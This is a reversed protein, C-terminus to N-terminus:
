PERVVPKAPPSGGSGGSSAGGSTGGSGRTSGGASGSTGGGASSGSSGDSTSGGGRPSDMRPRASEGGRTWHPDMMGPRSGYAGRYPTSPAPYVRDGGATRRETTVNRRGGIDQAREAFTPRNFAGDRPRIPDRRGARPTVPKPTTVPNDAVPTIVPTSRPGQSAMAMRWQWYAYSEYLSNGCGSGRHSGNLGYFSSFSHLWPSMGIAGQALFACDTASAASSYMARSSFSNAYDLTYRGNPSLLNAFARIALRPDHSSAYAPVEFEDWLGFGSIRDFRLPQDSAVMFVFGHGNGDYSDSMAGVSRYMAPRMFWYGPAADYDGTALDTRFLKKGEVYGSERADEPFLVRIVGDGGLHGVLVYAPREVSFLAALRRSFVSGDYEVIVNAAPGNRPVLPQPATAPRQTCAAIAVLLVPWFRRIMISGGLSHDLQPM